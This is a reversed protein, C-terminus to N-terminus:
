YTILITFQGTNLERSLDYHQLQVNKVWSKTKIRAMWENVPIIQASTGAIRIQGGSFAIYKLSHDNPQNIPAVAVSTWTIEPPLLAAVEDIMLSKSKGPAWGLQELLLEKQHIQDEIVARNTTNQSLAGARAALENNETSLWSLVGFNILLLLFLALLVAVGRAKFERSELEDALAKDLAPVHAKVVPIRASMALSFAAAYPLLLLEDIPENEIKCTSKDVPLDQKAYGTWEDKKNRSVQYGNFHLDPGYINLQPIIHEVPFIDLSLLLPKATLQQLRSIWQDADQKRIVSIFSTNGSNFNQIYFDDIRANPLVKSFNSANVAELREMQRTLVGRGTLNLAIFTNAPLHKALEDFSSIGVVKKEFQLQDGQVAISCVDIRFLSDALKCITIGTVKDIHYYRGLM